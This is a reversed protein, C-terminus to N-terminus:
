LVIAVATVKHETVNAPLSAALCCFLSVSLCLTRVLQFVHQHLSIFIMVLAAVPQRRALLYPNVSHCINHSSISILSFLDVFDLFQLCFAVLSAYM